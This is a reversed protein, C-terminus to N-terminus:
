RFWGKQIPLNSKKKKWDTWLDKLLEIIFYRKADSFHGHTEIYKGTDPDKVKPKLMSGDPAEKVTCYDDISTKCKDSIRINYGGLHNEYIENIFAASLAVEPASKIIRNTFRIGEKQLEQIFKDFFSASNEDSTNGARASPDGYLFLMDQFGIAILWHIFRRAAKPANNDPAKCPIEHIQNIDKAMVQWISVTVYPRLNNDLTVHIPGGMYALPKVDRDPDFQKWFEGGTKIVGREGNAYIRYQSSDRQRDLEFDRLTEEDYFGFRNNPGNDGSPHGVIWHNDRYTTVINVQNGVTNIKKFAYEANLASYKTPAKPMDLPLDIWTELDIWNEYNWLKASVPNWDCIFKQNPRGRLRKRQQKWQAESFQNWENNYVIDFDELGKINEENDLGKFTIYAGNIKCQIFDQQFIFYDKIGLTEIASKFSAYVTDEIHVHFRRFVIVNKKSAMIYLVLAQCITFTKAASSGGEVFIFRIAPNWILDILHWYLPNFLKPNFKFNM